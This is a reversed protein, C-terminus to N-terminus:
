RGSRRRFVARIMRMRDREFGVIARRMYRRYWEFGDVGVLREIGTRNREINQLWGRLTWIYDQSREEFYIVDFAGRASEFVEDAFPVDSEPFIDQPLLGLTKRRDVNGWTITQLSLKGQPELWSAAREFFGTYTAVKQSRTAGPQAFHEFAGVSVISSYKVSPRFSEYSQLHVRVGPMAMSRVHAFQDSSLTLGDARAVGYERVARALMGGWGCGVDLIRDHKRAGVSRLHFDLKATQADHLCRQRPSNDHAESWRGASYTLTPDLWLRFFDVGIDYHFRIAEM